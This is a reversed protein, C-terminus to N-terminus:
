GGGEGGRLVLAGGRQEEDAVEEFQKLAAGEGGM